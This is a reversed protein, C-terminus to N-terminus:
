PNKRMQSRAATIVGRGTVDHMDIANEGGGAFKRFVGMVRSEPKETLFCARYRRGAFDVEVNKM